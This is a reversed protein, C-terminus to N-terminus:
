LKQYLLFNNFEQRLPFAELVKKEKEENFEPNKQVVLFKAESAELPAVIGTLRDLSLCEFYQLCEEPFTLAPRPAFAWDAFTSSIKIQTAIPTLDSSTLAKGINALEELLEREKIRLPIDNERGKLMDLIVLSQARSVDLLLVPTIILFIIITTLQGIKKHLATLSSIFALPLFPAAIALGPYLFLLYRFNPWSAYFSQYALTPTDLFLWFLAFGAAPIFPPWLKKRFFLFGSVILILGVIALIIIIQQNIELYPQNWLSLDPSLNSVYQQISVPDREPIIGLWIFLYRGFAFIVAPLALATTLDPITLRREQFAVVLKVLGALLLFMIFSPFHILYLLILLILDRWWLPEQLFILGLVFLPLALNQPVVNTSILYYNIWHFSLVILPVLIALPSEPWIKLSLKGLAFILLGYCFFSWLLLFHQYAGIDKPIFAVFSGLALFFTPKYINFLNFITPISPASNHILRNTYGLWYYQDTGSNFYPRDLIEQLNFLYLILMIAILLILMGDSVTFKIQPLGQRWGTKTFTKLIIAAALIIAVSLYAKAQLGLPLALLGMISMGLTVLMMSAVGFLVLYIPQPRFLLALILGPLFFFWFFPPLFYLLFFEVM